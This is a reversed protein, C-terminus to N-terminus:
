EDVNSDSGYLGAFSNIKQLSYALIGCLAGIEKINRIYQDSTSSDLKM